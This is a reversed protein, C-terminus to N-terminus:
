PRHGTGRRRGPPVYKRAGPRVGARRPLFTGGSPVARVTGDGAGAIGKSFEVADRFGLGEKMQILDIADGSVGCTFCHFRGADTNVSASKSKDDHFPCLMGAWGFREPVFVAGYHYLVASV